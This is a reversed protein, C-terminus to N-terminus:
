VTFNWIKFQDDCIEESFEELIEIFFGNSCIESIKYHHRFRVHFYRSQWVKNRSRFHLHRKAYRMSKLTRQICFPIIFMNSVATIIKRIAVAESECNKPQRKHRRISEVMAQNLMPILHRVPCNLLAYDADKKCNLLENMKMRQIWAVFSMYTSFLVSGWFEKDEDIVKRAPTVIRSNLPDRILAVKGGIQHNSGRMILRDFVHTSVNKAEECKNLCLSHHEFVGFDKNCSLCKKTTGTRYQAMLNDIQASLNSHYGMLPNRCMQFACKGRNVEEDNMEHTWEQFEGNEIQHVGSFYKWHQVLNQVDDFSSYNRKVFIGIKGIKCFGSLCEPFELYEAYKAGKKGSKMELKPIKALKLWVARCHNSEHATIRVLDRYDWSLRYHEKVKITHEKIEFEEKGDDNNSNKKKVKRQITRKIIIKTTLRIWDSAFHFDTDKIELCDVPNWKLRYQHDGENWQCIFSSSLCQHVPGACDVVAGDFEQKADQHEDALAVTILRNFRRKLKSVDFEYNGEEDEELIEDRDQVETHSLDHNLFNFEDDQLGLLQDRLQFRLQEKEEDIQMADKDPFLIDHANIDVDAFVNIKQYENSLPCPLSLSIGLSHPRHPDLIRKRMRNAANMCHVDHQWQNKRLFKKLRCAINMRPSTERFQIRDWASWNMIQGLTREIQEMPLQLWRGGLKSSATHLITKTLSNMREVVDTGYLARYTSKLANAIELGHAVGFVSGHIYRTMRQSGILFMFLLFFHQAYINWITATVDPITTHSRHVNRPKLYKQWYRAYMRHDLLELPTLLEVLDVFMVLYYKEVSSNKFPRFGCKACVVVDELHEWLRRRWAGDSPINSKTPSEKCYTFPLDLCEYIHKLIQDLTYPVYDEGHNAIRFDRVLKLDGAIWLSYEIIHVHYYKLVIVSVRLTCHLPEVSKTRIGSGSVWDSVQLGGHQIQSLFWKYADDYESQFKKIEPSARTKAFPLLDAKVNPFDKQKQDDDKEAEGCKPVLYREKLQEWRHHGGYSAYSIPSFVTKWKSSLIPWSFRTFIVRSNSTPGGRGVALQLSKSDETDIITVNIIYGSELDILGLIQIMLGEQSSMQDTMMRSYRDEDIDCMYHIDAADISHEGGWISCNSLTSLIINRGGKLSYGDVCKKMILWFPYIQFASSRSSGYNQSAREDRFTRWTICRRITPITLQLSICQLYSSYLGPLKLPKANQHIPTGEMAQFHFIRCQRRFEERLPELSTPFDIM